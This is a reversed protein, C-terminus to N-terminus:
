CRKEATCVFVCVLVEEICHMCVFIYIYICIGAIYYKSTGRRHLACVCVHIYTYIDRSYLTLVCVRWEWTQGHKRTYQLVAFGRASQRRRKFRSPIRDRVHDYRTRPTLILHTFVTLLALPITTFAHPIACLQIYSNKHFIQKLCIFKDFEM